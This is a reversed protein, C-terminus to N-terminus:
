YRGCAIERERESTIDKEVKENRHVISVVVLVLVVLVNM